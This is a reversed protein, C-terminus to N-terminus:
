ETMISTRTTGDDAFTEAVAPLDETATLHLLVLMQTDPQHIDMHHMGHWLMRQQVAGIHHHLKARDAANIM